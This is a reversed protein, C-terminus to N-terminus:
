QGNEGHGSEGQKYMYKIASKYVLTRVRGRVKLARSDYWEICGEVHEGDMLVIVMPTQSQIQKQLYFVEAHPHPPEPEAHQASFHFPLPSLAVRPRRATMEPTATEAGSANLVAEPNMM